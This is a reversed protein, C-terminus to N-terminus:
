LSGRRIDNLRAEKAMRRLEFTITSELNNEFEVMGRPTYQYEISRIHGIDFPIDSVDNTILIAPTGVAHALGLEYFVNPNRGSCDAVVFRAYYIASWIDQVISRSGFFEDARSCSIGVRECVKKIHDTYVPELSAAFPMLVFADSWEGENPSGFVPKVSVSGQEHTEYLRNLSLGVSSFVLDINETPTLTTDYDYHGNEIDSGVSILKARQLSILTNVLPRLPGVSFFIGLKDALERLNKAQGDRISLLVAIPFSPSM